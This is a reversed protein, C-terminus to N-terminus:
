KRDEEEYNRIKGIIGLKKNVVDDIGNTNFKSVFGGNFSKFFKIQDNVHIRSNM